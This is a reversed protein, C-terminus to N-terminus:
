LGERMECRLYLLVNRHEFHGSFYSPAYYPLTVLWARCEAGGDQTAIKPFLKEAHRNALRKADELSVCLGSPNNHAIVAEGRHTTVMWGRMQGLLDVWEVLDIWYGHVRDHWQSRLQFGAKLKPKIRKISKIGTNAPVRIFELPAHAPRVAPLISLRLAEFHMCDAMADGTVMRDAEETLKDNLGCFALEDAHLGKQTLNNIRQHWQELNAKETGQTNLWNKLSSHLGRVGFPSATDPVLFPQPMHCPAREQAFAVLHHRVDDLWQRVTASGVHQLLQKVLVRVVGTQRGAIADELTLGALMQVPGSMTVLDVYAEPQLDGSAPVPAFPNVQGFETYEWIRRASLALTCGAIRLDLQRNNLTM